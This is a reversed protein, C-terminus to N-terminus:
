QKYKNQIKLHLSSDGPWPLHLLYLFPLLSHWDWFIRSLPIELMTASLGPMATSQESHSSEWVQHSMQSDPRQPCSWLGQSRREGPPQHHALYTRGRVESGECEPSKCLGLCCRARNAEKPSKVISPQKELQALFGKHTGRVLSEPVRFGWQEWSRCHSGLRQAPHTASGAWMVLSAQSLMAQLGHRVLGSLARTSWEGPVWAECRQNCLGRGVASQEKTCYDTQTTHGCNVYYSLYVFM